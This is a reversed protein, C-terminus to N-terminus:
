RASIKISKRSFINRMIRTVRLAPFSTKSSLHCSQLKFGDSGAKRENKLLLFLNKQDSFFNISINM